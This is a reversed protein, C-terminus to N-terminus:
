AGFWDTCLLYKITVPPIEWFFLQCLFKVKNVLDSAFNFSQLMLFHLSVDTASDRQGTVESASHSLTCQLVTAINGEEEAGPTRQLPSSHMERIESDNVSLFEVSCDTCM